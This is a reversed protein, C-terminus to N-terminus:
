VKNVVTHSNTIIDNPSKNVLYREYYFLYQQAIGSYKGMYQHSFDKDFYKELVKKVWVDVPFADKKGYGFLLVCSAVKPGVGKIKMLIEMAKQTDAEDIEDLNIEGSVVKSAADYLYKARFGTKCDFIEDVGALYLQNPTPFSYFTKGNFIFEDGFKQCLTKIIKKIRPINNNQSIIFSCLTEWKDQKMLRIGNGLSMAQKIVNTNIKNREMSSIIDSCIDDYDENLCFYKEIEPFILKDVNSITITNDSNKYVSIVRKGVIGSYIGHEDPAFNFCQGCDFVKDPDFHNLNTIIANGNEFNVSYGSM